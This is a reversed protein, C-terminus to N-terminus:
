VSVPAVPFRVPTLMSMSVPSTSPAVSYPKSGTGRVSPVQRSFVFSEPQTGLAISWQTIGAAIMRAMNARM